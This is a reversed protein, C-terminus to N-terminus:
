GMLEKIVGEELCVHSVAIELDRCYGQRFVDFLQRVWQRSEVTTCCTGATLLPWLLNVPGNSMQSCLELVARVSAQVRSDSPDISQIETLLSIEIMHRYASDGDQNMLVSKFLSSLQSGSTSAQSPPLQMSTSKGLGESQGSAIRGISQDLRNADHGNSGSALQRSRASAEERM